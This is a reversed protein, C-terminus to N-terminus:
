EEDAYVGIAITMGDKATKRVILKDAGYAMVSRECINDAGTTKLAFESSSFDGKQEMLEQASFTLFPIGFANSLSRLGDEECKIDISVLAKLARPDLRNESLIETLFGSLEEFSKGKRCGMGVILCKPILNPGHDSENPSSNEQDSDVDWAKGTVKFDSAKSGTRPSVTFVADEGSLLKATFEKALKMDDIELDHRRAFVDIAFEGRIDTATTVVPVAGTIEAIEYTADIAGGIHGALIPIVFQGREDIVIVGPDTTKDKMYPAIARVAIGIAGIFVLINGQKFVESVWENLSSVPLVEGWDEMLKGALSVMLERGADTFCIFKYKEAETREM